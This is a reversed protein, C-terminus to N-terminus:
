YGSVKDSLGSAGKEGERTKAFQLTRHELALDRGRVWGNSTNNSITSGEPPAGDEGLGAQVHWESRNLVRGERAEEQGNKQVRSMWLCHTLTESDRPDTM